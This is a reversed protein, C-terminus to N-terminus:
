GGIGPFPAGLNPPPQSIQRIGARLIPHFTGLVANGATWETARRGAMRLGELASAADADDRIGQLIEVAVDRVHWRNHNFGLHALGRIAERLIDQDRAARVALRAFDALPDCDPFSFGDHELAQTFVGFVHAFNGPNQEWWAQVVVAPVASLALAVHGTETIDAEDAWKIIEGVAEIDIAAALRQRLRREREEPTEWRGPPAVTTVIADLLEAASQHRRRPDGSIARRVVAALKGPPVDDNVPTGAILLAQLVKGASYIDATAAVHKADTWQEPAAYFPTGMQDATGTLRTSDAITRALGFDAIAWTGAHTRLVNQPKLDRHLVGVRHIYDIGACIDRMVAVIANDRMEGLLYGFRGLDDALSGLALPMAYWLGTGEDAGSALVPMVNPHSLQSMLQLERQFRAVTDADLGLEPKLVKLAVQTGAPAMIDVANHVVAFGGDAIPQGLVFRRGLAVSAAVQSPRGAARRLGSSGWRRVVDLDWVEGMSLVAVPAPFDDRQRLNAVQQRTVGLEAAVEAVGGLRV